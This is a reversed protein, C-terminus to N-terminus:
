SICIQLCIGLMICLAFNHCYFLLCAFAIFRHFKVKWSVLCSRSHLWSCSSIISIQWTNIRDTTAKFLFSVEFCSWRLVVLLNSLCLRWHEFLTALVIEFYVLLITEVIDLTKSQPFQAAAILYDTWYFNILWKRYEFSM